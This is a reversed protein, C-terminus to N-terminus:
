QHAPLRYHRIPHIVFLGEPFVDLGFDLHKKSLMIRSTIKRYKFGYGMQVVLISPKNINKQHTLGTFIFVDSVHFDLKDVMFGGYEILSGSSLKVNVGVNSYKVGCFIRTEDTASKKCVVGVAYDSFKPNADSSVLHLALMDGYQGVLDIQPLIKQENFLKAKLNLNAWTFPFFAPFLNFRVAGNKNALVPSFDESDTHLNFFFDGPNELFKMGLNILEKGIATDQFDQSNLSGVFLLLALLLTLFSKKIM